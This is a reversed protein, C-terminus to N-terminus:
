PEKTDGASMLLQALLFCASAVVKGDGQPFAAALSLHWWADLPRSLLLLVRGLLLSWVGGQGEPAGGQVGSPDWGASGVGMGGPLSEDREGGVGGTVDGGRAGAVGGENCGQLILLAEQLLRGAEAIMMGRRRAMDRRSSAHMRQLMAAGAGDADAARLAAYKSFEEFSLRGDGSKDLKRFVARLEDRSMGRNCGM